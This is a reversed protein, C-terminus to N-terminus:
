SPVARVGEILRAQHAMAYEDATREFACGAERVHRALVRNGTALLDRVCELLELAQEFLGNIERMARETFPVGDGVMAAIARALLEVNDGIRELHLPALLVPDVADRPPVAVLADTLLKEREHIERGLRAAHALPSPDQTRFAKWTLALMDVAQRCMEHVEHGLKDRAVIM